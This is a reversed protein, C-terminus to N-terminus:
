AADAREHPLPQPQRQQLRFRSGNELMHARANDHVRAVFALWDGNVEICRLQLVAEAREKIWRMGGNDLRRGMIHKIAGEVAGTGLELDQRILEDYNMMATRNAIYNRTSSLKARRFKNGPGTKPTRTLRADLEAVVDDVYGTYLRHKQGEVWAHHESTGEKHVATGASWLKEIVHMVDITHIADPFLDRVYCALDTDGDTLVQVTRRTGPPFGRKTAERRAFEMAYRKPAFSAFVRKNIPGLLSGANPRLTYIVVMTGMKANKAKDGKKRRPTKTWRQRTGRGRHRPSAPKRRHSRKGRRKKLEQPKATPVGKSDAHIILVTGDGDPAPAEEFWADSHRGYGLLAAEVVETSPAVPLFWRLMERADSFSVRTALRVAVSLVNPSVRDAFLGLAADLPHFGRAGRGNRVERLYTRAYRVVGFWTMLNREQAPAPRFVRGGRVVRSPLGARTREESAVLFLAVVARGLAAMREILVREFEVFTTDRESQEVAYSILAETELLVALRASRRDEMAKVDGNRGLSPCSIKQM